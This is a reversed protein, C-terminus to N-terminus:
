LQGAKTLKFSKLIAEFARCDEKYSDEETRLYLFYEIVKRKAQVFDEIIWHDEKTPRYRAIVRQANLGALRFSYSKIIAVNKEGYKEHMSELRDTVAREVSADEFGAYLEIYGGSEPSRKSLPIIRGHDAMCICGEDPDNVCNASNWIGKLNNPIRVKFGFDWNEYFDKTEVEDPCLEEKSKSNAPISCAFVQLVIILFIDVLPLETIVIRGM